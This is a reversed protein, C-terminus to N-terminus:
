RNLVKVQSDQIYVDRYSRFVLDDKIDALKDDGLITVKVPHGPVLDFYNNTAKLYKSKRSIFLNKVIISKTEVIITNFDNHYTVQIETPYLSFDKFNANFHTSVMEQNKGAVIETYIM